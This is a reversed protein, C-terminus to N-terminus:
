QRSQTGTGKTRGKLLSHAGFAIAAGGLVILPIMVPLWPGICTMSFEPIDFCLPRYVFAILVAVVGVSLLSAGRVAAM